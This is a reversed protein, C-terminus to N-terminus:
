NLDSTLESAEKQIQALMEENIAIKRMRKNRKYVWFPTEKQTRIERYLRNRFITPPFEQYEPRLVHLDLPKMNETNYIGSSKLDEELLKKAKNQPHDWRPYGAKLVRERPYKTSDKEFAEKDFMVASAQKDITKKLNRFNTRFKLKDYQQFLSFRDHIKDITRHSLGPDLAIMQQIINDDDAELQEKLWTKAVSMKKGVSWPPVEDKEKDKEKSM